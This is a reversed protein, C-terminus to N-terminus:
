AAVFSHPLRWSEPGSLAAAPHRRAGCARSDGRDRALPRGPLARSYAARRTRGAGCCGTGRRIGPGDATPPGFQQEMARMVADTIAAPVGPRLTALAPPQSNMQQEMVQRLTTGDFARRGALMEYLVCGLATIPRQTRELERSQGAGARSEHVGAHRDAVGTGTSLTNGSAVGLARAIGFDAVLAHSM